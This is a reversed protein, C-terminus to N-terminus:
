KVRQLVVDMKGNIQAISAKLDSIETRFKGVEAEFAQRDRIRDAEIKDIKDNSDKIDIMVRAYTAGVSLCLVIFAILMGGTLKAFNIWKSVKEQLTEINSEVEQDSM